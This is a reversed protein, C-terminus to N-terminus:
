RNAHGAEGAGCFSLLVSQRVRITSLGLDIGAMDDMWAEIMPTTLDAVRALCTSLSLPDLVAGLDMPLDTSRRGGQLTIDAM